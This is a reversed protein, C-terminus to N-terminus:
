SNRMRFYDALENLPVEVQERSEMDRVGVTGKQVEDEGVIVVWRVGKSSAYSLQGRLDADGSYVDVNLFDLMNRVRFVYEMMEPSANRYAILVQTYTSPIEKLLGLEEMATMLRDIGISGGVAPVPYKTFVEILGDYRGGGAVSGIKLNNLVIEFVMGTYYDLGRALSIDFVAERVGLMDLYRFVDGLNDFAERGADGVFEFVREISPSEEILGLITNVVGEDFGKELYLKRIGDLGVKDLKDLIRAMEVEMDGELGFRHAIARLFQRHNVRITFDSLGLEVLADRIAAIIQADSLSNKSGITDIDCQYFERYRGKQPKEARWVPQIQYRKFPRPLNGQNAAFFRALPVTLDYRLGVERDGRDRFRYILKEEAGYKGSLVDWSEIAPTEIPDFGHRRFVSKIKEFLVERRIQQPPLFDRMGKLPKLGAM